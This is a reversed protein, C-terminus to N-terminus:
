SRNFGQCLMSWTIVYVYVCAFFIIFFSVKPITRSINRAVPHLVGEAAGYEVPGEEVTASIRVVAAHVGGTVVRDGAGVEGAVWDVMLSVPVVRGVVFVVVAGAIVGMVIAGLELMAMEVVLAAGGVELLWAGPSVVKRTFVLM